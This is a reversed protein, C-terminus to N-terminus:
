RQKSEEYQSPEEEIAQEYRELPNDFFSDDAEDEDALVEYDRRKHRNQARRMEREDIMDEEDLLPVPRPGISGSASQLQARADKEAINQHTPREYSTELNM